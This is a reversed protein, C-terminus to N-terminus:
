SAKKAPEVPAGAAAAPSVAAEPPPPTPDPHQSVAQDPDAPVLLKHDEEDSLATPGV